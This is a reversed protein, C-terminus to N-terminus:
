LVLSLVIAVAVIVAILVISIICCCRKTNGKSYENAKNIEKGAKDVNDETKVVHAEINELMEGQEYLQNKMQDTTEKILAATQHIDQLAEKRQKLMEKNNMLDLVMEQQQGKEEEDEEDQKDRLELDPKDFNRIKDEMQDVSPIIDNEIKELDSEIKNSMEEKITGNEKADDFSNKLDKLGKRFLKINKEIRSGEKDWERQGFEDALLKTRDKKIQAVSKQLNQYLKRLKEDNLLSEEM